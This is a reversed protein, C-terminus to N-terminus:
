KDTVKKIFGTMQSGKEMIFRKTKNVINIMSAGALTFVALMAYPHHRKGASRKM